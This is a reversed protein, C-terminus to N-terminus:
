KHDMINSLNKANSDVITHHGVHSSKATLDCNPDYIIQEARSPVRQNDNMISANGPSPENPKSNPIKANILDRLSVNAAETSKLKQELSAIINSMEDVEHSRGEIILSLDAELRKCRERESSLKVKLRNVKGCRSKSANANIGSQM